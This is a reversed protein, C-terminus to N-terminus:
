LYFVAVKTERVEQLPSHMCFQQPTVEGREGEACKMQRRIGALLLPAIVRNLTSVNTRNGNAICVLHVHTGVAYQFPHSQTCTVINEGVLRLGVWIVGFLMPYVISCPQVKALDYFAKTTPTKTDKHTEAEIFGLDFDCHIM